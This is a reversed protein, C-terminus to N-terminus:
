FPLDEEAAPVFTQAPAAVAQTPASRPPRALTAPAAAPAATAARTAATAVTSSTMAAEASGDGDAGNGNRPPETIFERAERFYEAFSAWGHPDTAEGKKFQPVCYQPGKGDKKMLLSINTVNVFMPRKSRVFDTMYRKAPAMGTKQVTFLSQGTGDPQTVVFTFQESCAPPTSGKGRGEWEKLPCAACEICHNGNEDTAMGNPDFPTAEFPFILGKKGNPELLPYGTRGERSKCLPSDSDGMTKPWLIRQTVMGLIILNLEPTEEGTLSDVFLGGPHDISIRPIAARSTDFDELGPIVGGFQEPDFTAVQAGSLPDTDGSGWTDVTM